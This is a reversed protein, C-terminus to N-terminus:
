QEPVVNIYWKQAVAMWVMGTPDFATVQVMLQFRKNLYKTGVPIAIPVELQCYNGATVNVGTEPVIIWGYCEQPLLEYGPLLKAPNPPMLTVYFTRDQEPGNLITLYSTNSGGPNGTIYAEAGWIGIGSELQPVLTTNTIVETGESIHVTPTRFHDVILYCATALAIALTIRVLIETKHM